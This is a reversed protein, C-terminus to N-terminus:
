LVVKNNTLCTEWNNSKIILYLHPCHCTLDPKASNQSDAAILANSARLPWWGGALKSYPFFHYSCLHETTETSGWHCRIHFFSYVMFDPAAAHSKLYWFCGLLLSLQFLILLINAQTSFLPLSSVNVLMKISLGSSVTLFILGLHASSGWPFMEHDQGDQSVKCTSSLILYQQYYSQCFCQFVTIQGLIHAKKTSVRVRVTLADSFLLVAASSFSTMALPLSSTLVSQSYIEDPNRAMGM